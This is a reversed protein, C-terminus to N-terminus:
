DTLFPFDGIFHLRTDTPDRSLFEIVERPKKLEDIRVLGGLDRARQAMRDKLQSGFGRASVLRLFSTTTMLEQLKTAHQVIVARFHLGVYDVGALLTDLHAMVSQGSDIEVARLRLDNDKAAELIEETRAVTDKVFLLELKKLCHLHNQLNREEAWANNCVEWRLGVVNTLKKFPVHSHSMMSVSLNKIQALFEQSLQSWFHEHPAPQLELSTINVFASLNELQLAFEFGNSFYESSCSVAKVTEFFPLKAFPPSSGNLKMGLYPLEQRVPVGSLKSIDDSIILKQLRASRVLRRWEVRDGLRVCEIESISSTSALAQLQLSELTEDVVVRKVPCLGLISNMIGKTTMALGDLIDDCSVYSLIDKLIVPPLRDFHFTPEEPRYGGCTADNGNVLLFRLNNVAIV